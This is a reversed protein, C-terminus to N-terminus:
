MLILHMVGSLMVIILILNYIHSTIYCRQQASIMEFYLICIIMKLNESNIILFFM